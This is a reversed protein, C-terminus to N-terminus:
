TDNKITQNMTLKKESDLSKTIILHKTSIGALKWIAGGEEDRRSTDLFYLICEEHTCQRVRDLGNRENSEIFSQILQVLGKKKMEVAEIACTFKGKELTINWNIPISKLLM